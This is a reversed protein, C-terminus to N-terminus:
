IWGLERLRQNIFFDEQGYGAANMHTPDSPYNVFFSPPLSGNAIAADDAETPAIGAQALAAYSSLYALSNVFCRGYRNLMAGHVAARGALTATTFGIVLFRRVPRTQSNVISDIMALLQETDAYGGNQGIKIILIDGRRNAYADTVVPAPFPVPVEAGSNSRTFTYIGGALSLTGVVGAISCPNVGASGQMLPAVDGGDMSKLTVAVGGSAPIAGGSITALWPWSGFRGAITRATEGGVGLNRVTRGTLAALNSTGAQATLSDGIRAIDPGSIGGNALVPYNQTIAALVTGAPIIASDDLAIRWRGNLLVGGLMQDASDILGFLYGSSEPMPMFRVGGGLPPVGADDTLFLKWKGTAREILALINDAEDVLAHSYIAHYFPRLRLSGFRQELDSKTEGGSRAIVDEDLAKFPSPQSM